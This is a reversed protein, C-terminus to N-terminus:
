IFNILRHKQDFSTDIKNLENAMDREIMQQSVRQHNSTFYSDEDFIDKTIHGEESPVGTEHEQNSENGNYKNIISARFSTRSIDLKQNDSPELLSNIEQEQLEIMKQFASIKSIYM